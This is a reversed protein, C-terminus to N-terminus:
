PQKNITAVAAFTNPINQLPASDIVLTTEDIYRKIEAYVALVEPAAKRVKSTVFCSPQLSSVPAKIEKHNVSSELYLKAVTAVFKLAADEFVIIYDSLTFIKRRLFLKVM